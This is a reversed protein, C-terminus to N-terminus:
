KRELHDRFNEYEGLVVKKEEIIKDEVLKKYFITDGYHQVTEIFAVEKKNSKLNIYRYYYNNVGSKGFGSIRNKEFNYELNMGSFLESFEFSKSNPNFLYTIHSENAGGGARETLFKFDFKGDRNVDLSENTYSYPAPYTVYKGTTRNTFNNHDLIDINIPNYIFHFQELDLDLLM